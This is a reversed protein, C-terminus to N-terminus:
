AIRHVSGDSCSLETGAGVGLEKLKAQLLPVASSLDHVTFTVDFFLRSGISGQGSGVWDGIGVEEVYEALPEEVESRDAVPTDACYCTVTIAPTSPSEDDAVLAVREEPTLSRAEGLRIGEEALNRRRAPKGFVAEANRLIARKSASRSKGTM